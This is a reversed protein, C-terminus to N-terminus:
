LATRRKKVTRDWCVSRIETEYSVGIMKARFVIPYLKQKLFLQMKLM